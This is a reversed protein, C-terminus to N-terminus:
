GPYLIHCRAVIDAEIARLQAKLRKRKVSRQHNVRSRDPHLPGVKRLVLGLASLTVRHHALLGLLEPDPTM